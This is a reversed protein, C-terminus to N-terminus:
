WASSGRCTTGNMASAAPGTYLTTSMFPIEVLIGIIYAVIGIGVIVVSLVARVRAGPIWNRAFTQGTTISCVVGGHQNASIWWQGNCLAQAPYITATSASACGSGASGPSRAPPSRTGRSSSRPSPETFSRRALERLAAEAKRLNVDPDRGPTWQALGARLDGTM